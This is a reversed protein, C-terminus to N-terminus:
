FSTTTFPHIILPKKFISSSILLYSTTPISYSLKIHVQYHHPFFKWSERGRFIQFIWEFTLHYKMPFHMFALSCYFFFTHSAVSSRYYDQYPKYGLWVQNPLSFISRISGSFGVWIFLKVWLWIFLINEEFSLFILWRNQYRCYTCNPISTPLLFFIILSNSSLHFVMTYFWLIVSDGLNSTVRLIM